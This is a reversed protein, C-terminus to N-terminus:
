HVPLSYENRVWMKVVKGDADTEFRATENSQGEEELTFIGKEGTPKLVTPPMDIFDLSVMQLQNDRVVVKVTSWDSVYEGTYKSWDADATSKAKESIKIIEPLVLKYAQELYQHPNSGLANTLVIVGTNHKQCVTFWTLYGNYGGSHGSIVWDKVKFVDIGLGYGGDWRPNVWHIRHMDRLSHVSLISPKSKLTHFRAYKVLDNVSSAINASAEFSNMVFFPMVDREHRANIRSYGTALQPDDAKPITFTETMGLPSIINQQLYEAWSLGSVAEIIGGLLSYGLNSYAYDEYPARTPHRLSTEAVFEEWEPGEAETWMPGHSDRPLGATHTLLNRITMEPADQYRLSFWNLHKSVPDDLGLKGADRLQMIAVATFTKTISAIRFRTDLTVPKKTALDAYGYGKGWLLEGDHVIGIALGPQQNKHMTHEIWKDLIAISTTLDPHESLLPHSM